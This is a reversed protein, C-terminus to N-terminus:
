TISARVPLILEKNELNDMQKTAASIFVDCTAGQDIQLQLTGSAAYNLKLIVNPNAKTFLKLLKWPM